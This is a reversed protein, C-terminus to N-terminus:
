HYEKEFVTKLHEIIREVEEPSEDYHQRNWVIPFADDYFDDQDDGWQTAQGTSQSMLDFIMLLAEEPTEMQEGVMIGTKNNHYDMNTALEHHPDVYKGPKYNPSKLREVFEVTDGLQKAAWPGVRQTALAAAYAHRMADGPGEHYPAPLGLQDTLRSEDGVSFIGFPTNYTLDEIGSM